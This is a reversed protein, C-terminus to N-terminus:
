NGRPEYALTYKCSFFSHNGKAGLISLILGELVGNILKRAAGLESTLPVSSLFRPPPLLGALAPRWYLMDEKSEGLYPLPIANTLQKCMDGLDEFSGACTRGTMGNRLVSHGLYAQTEM